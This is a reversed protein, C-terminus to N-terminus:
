IIVVLSHCPGGRSPHDSLTKPNDYIMRRPVGGFFAFARDHADFVMEQSERPYAALFCQRSHALRFHALKITQVVGGLEVQEHSWDFQAADASPFVLPIFAQTNTPSCREEKWAKVYRQVSDYAGGYGELQLDEFLHQASRRQRKPRQADQELWVQLREEHEGLKPKPQSSRQYEPPDTQKLYKKVTNRSLSLDRAIGSITEGKVLHRRRIKSVTEM